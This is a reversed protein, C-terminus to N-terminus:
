YITTASELMSMDVVKNRIPLVYNIESFDKASIIGNSLVSRSVTEIHKKLNRKLQDSDMLLAEDFHKPRPIIYTLVICETVSLDRPIKSFYYRCGEKIGYVGPAFEIINLYIELIRKKPLTLGTELLWAIVIEEIKRYVSKKHNLYLNRALQMTITSGGRVVRRQQLNQLLAYGIFSIDTGKHVFFNPDETNIITKYLKEPMEDLRSFCEKGPMSEITKVFRGNDYVHHVFPGHLHYFCTNDMKRITFKDKVLRTHFVAKDTHKLSFSLFADFSLHGGCDVQYLDQCSFSPFSALFERVATNRFDVKIAFSRDATTYRVYPKCALLNYEMESSDEITFFGRNVSCDLKMRLHSFSVKEAAVLSNHVEADKVTMRMTFFSASTLTLEWSFFSYGLLLSRKGHTIHLVKEKGFPYLEEIAIRKQARDIHGKMKIPLSVLDPFRMMTCFVGDRVVLGDFVAVECVSGQEIDAKVQQVVLQEPLYRFMRNLGSRMLLYGRQIWLEKSKESRGAAPRGGPVAASAVGGRYLFHLNGVLLQRIAVKRQLMARLNVVIILYSLTIVMREAAAYVKIDECYLKGTISIRIKKVTIGLGLWSGMRTCLRSTLIAEMKSMRFIDLIYICLVLWALSLQGPISKGM